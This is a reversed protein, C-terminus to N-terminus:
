LERPVFTTSSPPPAKTSAAPPSPAPKGPSAPRARAPRPEPPAAVTAVAAPPTAADPTATPAAPDLAPAARPMSPLGAPPTASGRSGRGLTLVLGALVVGLAGGALMVRRGARAGPSAPLDPAGEGPETRPTPSGGDDLSPAPLSPVRAIGGDHVPRPHVNLDRVLTGVESASAIPVGATSLAAAFAAATAFRDAPAPRLARMCAAELAAPISPDVERPSRREAGLVQVLLAGDHDASLLRQGTLAQWLTVGASYIDACRDIPGRGMQEPAMFAIKGKIQGAETSSLRGRAHAVGFDM